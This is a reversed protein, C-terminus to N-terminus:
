RRGDTRTHVAAFPIANLNQSQGGGFNGAGAMRRGDLLVLTRSSGVGRLSIFAQGQGTFGSQDRFSGFTNYVSQRLVEAVSIEGTADLDERTIITIPNAGEIEARLIRSGTVTFRDGEYFEEDEAEASFVLPTVGSLVAGATLARRLAYILPRQRAM